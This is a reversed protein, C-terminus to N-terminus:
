AAADLVAEAGTGAIDASLGAVPHRDPSPWPSARRPAPPCRLAPHRRPSRPPPSAPHRDLEAQSYIGPCPNGLPAQSGHPLPLLRISDDAMVANGSDRGLEEVLVKVGLGRADLENVSWRRCGKDEAVRSDPPQSAEAGGPLSNCPYGPEGGSLCQEDTLVPLGGAALMQMMMSTGSRPLGSAVVIEDDALPPLARSEGLMGLTAADRMAARADRADPLEAGPRFNAIRQHSERALLWHEAAGVKDGARALLRALRKHAAPFVPNQASATELARRADEPQCLRLLAVAIWYHARPQHYVL